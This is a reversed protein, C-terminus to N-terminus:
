PNVGRMGHYNHPENAAPAARLCNRGSLKAEYLAKDAAEIFQQPTNASIMPYTAIGISVTVRKGEVSGAEVAVRFRPTHVQATGDGQQGPGGDRDLGAVEEPRVDEVRNRIAAKGLDAVVDGGEHDLLDDVLDRIARDALETM